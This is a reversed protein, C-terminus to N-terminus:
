ENDGKDTHVKSCRTTELTEKEDLKKAGHALGVSMADM